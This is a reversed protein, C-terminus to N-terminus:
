LFDRSLKYLYAVRGSNLIDHEALAEIQTKLLEINDIMKKAKTIADNCNVMASALNQLNGTRLAEEKQAIAIQLDTKIIM